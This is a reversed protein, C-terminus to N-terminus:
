IGCIFSIMHYKHKEPKNWQVYYERAGDMDTCIVLNWEKKGSLLIGYVCVGGVDEKDM